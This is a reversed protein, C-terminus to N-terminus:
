EGFRYIAYAPQNTRYGSGSWMDRQRFDSVWQSGTYMAIHGAPHGGQYNQIVVIDGRRPSYGVHSIRSFGNQMLTSGYRKAEAPYGQLQLGGASLALRIAEACRGRSIPTANNNLRQIALNLDLRKQPFPTITNEPTTMM